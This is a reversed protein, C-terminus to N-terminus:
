NKKKDVPLEEPMLLMLLPIPGDTSITGLLVHKDVGTSTLDVKGILLEKQADKELGTKFIKTYFNIVFIKVWTFYQAM